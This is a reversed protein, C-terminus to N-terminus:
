RIDNKVLRKILICQRRPKIRHKSNHNKQGFILKEELRSVKNALELHYKRLSEIARKNEEALAIVRKDVVQCSITNIGTPKINMVDPINSSALQNELSEIKITM